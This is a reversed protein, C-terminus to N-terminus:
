FIIRFFNFLINMIAALILTIVFSMKLMIEMNYMIALNVSYCSSVSITDKRERKIAFRCLHLFIFLELQGREEWFVFVFVCVCWVCLCVGM